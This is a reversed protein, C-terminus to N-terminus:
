GSASVDIQCCLVILSVSRWAGPPIRDRMGLVLAVASRHRLCHTAVPIPKVGSAIQSIEGSLV